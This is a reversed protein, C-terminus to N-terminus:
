ESRNKIWAILFSIGIFGFISGFVVRVEHNTIILIVMLIVIIALITCVMITLADIIIDDKKSM